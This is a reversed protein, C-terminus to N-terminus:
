PKPKRPGKDHDTYQALPTMPWVHGNGDKPSISREQLGARRRATDWVFASHTEPLAFVEGSKYIGAMDALFARTRDNIRVAWFGIESHQRARGLFCVEASRMLGPIFDLPVARKTVVDADLWILIDGDALGEAAAGPILIQKWFKAADTRFSYGRRRESEKWCPKPVKGQAEPRGAHEVHFTKAGPISWLDRCAERPMPVPEEVYVQLEIEAPWYRDFSALFREGYITRAAPHFGSCVRITM